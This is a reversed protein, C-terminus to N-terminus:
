NQKNKKISQNVLTKVRDPTATHRHWEIMTVNVHRLAGTVLLDPVVELESGEIDMKMLVAPPRLPDPARGLDRKSVVDLIYSSLRVLSVTGKEHVQNKEVNWM